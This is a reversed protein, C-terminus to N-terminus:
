TQCVLWVDTLDPTATNPPIPARLLADVAKNAVVTM